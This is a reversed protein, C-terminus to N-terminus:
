SFRESPARAFEHQSKRVCAFAAWAGIVIAGIAPGWQWFGLGRVGVYPDTFYSHIPFLHTVIFGVAISAGTLGLLQRGWERRQVLGFVSVVTLFLGFYGLAYGFATEPAASSVTFAHVVQVTILAIGATLRERVIGTVSLVM